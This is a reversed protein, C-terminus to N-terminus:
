ASESEVLIVANDIVFLVKFYRSNWIITDSNKNIADLDVFSYDSTYIPQYMIMYNNKMEGIKSQIRDKLYNSLTELEMSFFAKITYNTSTTDILGTGGCDDATPYLRHWERSYVSSGDGRSTLCPCATGTVKRYTASSGFAEVHRTYVDTNVFNM